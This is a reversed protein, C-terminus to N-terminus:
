LSSAASVAKATADLALEGNNVAALLLVAM